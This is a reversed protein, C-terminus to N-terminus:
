WGVAASTAAPVATSVSVLVPLPRHLATLSWTVRVIPSAGTTFAPGSWDRQAFLAVTCSAPLTCFAVPPLQLPPRPLKAGLM